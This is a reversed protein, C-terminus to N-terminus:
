DKELVLGLRSLFLRPAPAALQGHEATGYAGQVGGGARGVSKKFSSLEFENERVWRCSPLM